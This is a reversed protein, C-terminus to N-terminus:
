KALRPKQLTVRGLGQYVGLFVRQQAMTFKKGASLAGWREGRSSPLRQCRDHSNWLRAKCMQTACTCCRQDPLVLEAGTEIPIWKVGAPCLALYLNFATQQLEAEAEYSAERVFDAFGRMSRM